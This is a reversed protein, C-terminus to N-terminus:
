GDDAETALAELENGCEPDDFNVEDPLDLEVEEPDFNEWDEKFQAAAQGRDSELWKASRGGLEDNLRQAVDVVFARAEDVAANYTDLAADVPAKLADLGLNFEDVAAHLKLAADSILTVLADRQAREQKSLKM